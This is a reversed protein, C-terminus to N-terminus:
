SKAGEKRLFQFCQQLDDEAAMVEKYKKTVQAVAYGNALDFRRIDGVGTNGVFAWQVIARIARSGYIKM